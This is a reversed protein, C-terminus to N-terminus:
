VMTGTNKKKKEIERFVELVRNKIDGVAGTEIKRKNEWDYCVAKKGDTVETKPLPCLGGLGHNSTKKKTLVWM